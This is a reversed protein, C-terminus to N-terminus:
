KNKLLRVDFNDLYYNLDLKPDDIDKGNEDFETFYELKFLVNGIQVLKRKSM